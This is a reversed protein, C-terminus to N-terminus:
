CVRHVWRYKDPTIGYQIDLLADRIRKAVPGSEGDNITFEGHKSKVCAVPSVVAATGCAFVETM